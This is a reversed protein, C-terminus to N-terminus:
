PEGSYVRVYDVLMMAPFETTPTPPGPFWGGVALNLIIYFPRDFPAPHPASGSHWADQVAYCIHDVYWRIEDPGWEIAYDHFAETPDGSVAYEASKSANNPAAGGFHLTGAVANGGDSAGSVGLNRAEMIDIEGSAPWAGYASDQPMLWFAPWIGQGGPLRIRAEIRGYRFAFRDRTNIRASTFRFEGLRQRHAVIVLHGNKTRANQPRYWQLERNGWGPIGYQSGDGEELFWTRPDLGPGNFEERWVLKRVGGPVVPANDVVTLEPGLGAVKAAALTSDPKANGNWQVAGCGCAAALLALRGVVRASFQIAGLGAMVRNQMPALMVRVSCQPLTVMVGHIPVFDVCGSQRKENQPYVIAM